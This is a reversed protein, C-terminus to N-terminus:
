PKSQILPYGPNRVLVTVEDGATVATAADAPCSTLAGHVLVQVPTTSMVTARATVDQASV